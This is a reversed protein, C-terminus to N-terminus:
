RAERALYDEIAAALPAPGAIMGPVRASPGNFGHVAGGVFRVSGGASRVLAVGAAVDWEHKPVLSFTADARGAAVLSLKYAVSGVARVRFPAARFREWEGRGAESRSALIEAGALATRAAVRVPVDNLFAGSDRHGLFTEGALPNLTGGAIPEGDVVLAVSVCWEPIGDVLQRTGDIPDVVWVRACGLRVPDDETEESLWGEGPRLLTGRLAADVARDARTVPEGGTKHELALQDRPIRRLVEGALVLAERIRGLDAPESAPSRSV